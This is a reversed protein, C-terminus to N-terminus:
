KGMSYAGPNHEKEITLTESVIFSPSIGIM